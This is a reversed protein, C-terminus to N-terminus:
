VPRDNGFLEFRSIQDLLEAAEQRLVRLESDDDISADARQCAIVRQAIKRRLADLHESAADLEEDNTIRSPSMTSRM